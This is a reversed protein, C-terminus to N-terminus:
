IMELLEVIESLKVDEDQELEIYQKLYGQVFGLRYVKDTHIKNIEEKLEQITNNEM